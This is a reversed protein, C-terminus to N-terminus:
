KNMGTRSFGGGNAHAYIHIWPYWNMSGLDIHLQSYRFHGKRWTKLGGHSNKHWTYYSPGKSGSRDLGEWSWGLLQAWTYVKHDLTPEGHSTIKSGNYCFRQKMTFYAFTTDDAARLYYAKGIRHCKTGSRAKFPTVTSSTKAKDPAAASSTETATTKTGVVPDYTTTQTTKKVPYAIWHGSSLLVDTDHKSLHNNKAAALFTRSEKHQGAEVRTLPIPEHNDLHQQYAQESSKHDAPAAAATMTTTAAVAIVATLAARARIRM